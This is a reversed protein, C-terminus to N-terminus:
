HYLTKFSSYIEIVDPEVIDQGMVQTESLSTKSNHLKRNIQFRHGKENKELGMHSDLKRRRASLQKVTKDDRKKQALNLSEQM